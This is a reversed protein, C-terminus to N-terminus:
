KTKLTHTLSYSTARPTEGAHEEMWLGQAHQFLKFYHENSKPAKVFQWGEGQMTGEKGNTRHKSNLHLIALHIPEHMFEEPILEAIAGTDILLREYAAVQAWYHSWVEKSTKIDILYTKGDIRMVRDLTGGFGLKKSALQMENAFVQAPFRRRFDCYKGIMDWESLKYQPEGEPTMLALEGGKDLTETANHVVSGRRGAEDRIEDSDQGNKKLWEFFGAGKPYAENTITTVSPVYENEGVRYWRSDLFSIRGTKENVAYNNAGIKTVYKAPTDSTITGNGNSM